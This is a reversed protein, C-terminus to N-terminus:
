EIQEIQTPDRELAEAVSPDQNVRDVLGPSQTIRDVLGTDLTPGPAIPDLLNPNLQAPDVGEPQQETGGPVDIDTGPTFATLGAVKIPGQIDDTPPLPDPKPIGGPPVDRFEILQDPQQPPTEGPEGPPPPPTDEGVPPWPGFDLGRVGRFDGGIEPIDTPHPSVTDPDYPPNQPGLEEAARARAEAQQKALDNDDTM